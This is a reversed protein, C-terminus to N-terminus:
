LQPATSEVRHLWAENLIAAKYYWKNAVSGRQGGPDTDSPTGPMRVIPTFANIGKLSICGIAEQAYFVMPYIAAKTADSDAPVNTGVAGGVRTDRYPEFMATTIFRVNEISGFEFELGKTSGYESVHVFGALGRIVPEMDTHCFCLYAKEIPQTGVNISPSLQEQVMLGRNRRINRTARHLDNLTFPTVTAGRSAASNSYSVSNGSTAVTWAQMENTEGAQQALNDKSDRWIDSDIFDSAVDTIEVWSMYQDYTGTIDRYTLTQGSPTVGEAVPTTLPAFLNRGRFKFQNTVNKPTQYQKFFRNLVLQQDATKLMDKIAFVGQQPTIDGYKNAM